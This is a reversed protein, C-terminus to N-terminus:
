KNDTEKRLIHDFKQKIQYEKEIKIYSITNKVKAVIAAIVMGPMLSILTYNLGVLALYEVM